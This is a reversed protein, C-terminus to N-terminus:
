RELIQSNVVARQLEVCATFLFGVREDHVRVHTSIRPYSRLFDDFNEQADAAAYDRIFRIGELHGPQFRWTRNHADILEREDRLARIIPNIVSDFWARVINPGVRQRGTRPKKAAM